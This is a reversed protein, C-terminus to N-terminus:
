YIAKKYSKFETYTYIDVVKNNDFSFVMMVPDFWGEDIVYEIEDDSKANPEGLLDQIDEMTMDMLDYKSKLDDIMLVREYRYRSWKQPTFSQIYKYASLSLICVLGLCILSVIVTWRWIAKGERKFISIVIPFIVLGLPLIIYVISWVCKGLIHVLTDDFSQGALFVVIIGICALWTLVCCCRILVSFFKKM